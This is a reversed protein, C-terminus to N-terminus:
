MWGGNQVRRVSVLASLIGDRTKPLVILGYKGEPVLDKSLVALSDSIRAVRKRLERQAKKKKEERVQYKSKARAKM